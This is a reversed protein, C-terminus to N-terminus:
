NGVKPVPVNGPNKRPDGLAGRPLLVRKFSSDNEAGRLFRHVLQIVLQSSIRPQTSAALVASGNKPNFPCTAKKNPYTRAIYTSQHQYGDICPPHLTCMCTRM